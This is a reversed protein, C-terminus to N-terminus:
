HKTEPCRAVGVEFITPSADVSQNRLLVLQSSGRSKTDKESAALTEALNCIVYSQDVASLEPLTRKSVITPFYLHLLEVPSGLAKEVVLYVVLDMYFRTAVLSAHQKLETKFHSKTLEVLTQVLTNSRPSQPGFSPLRLLLRKVVVNIDETPLTPIAALLTEVLADEAGGQKEAVAKTVDEELFALVLGRLRARMNLEDADTTESTAPMIQDCLVSLTVAADLELHGLLAKKVVVVEDPEDSQLLQLLVDTNRRVWKSAAKSVATIANYGAKRVSAAQDECLDYVANIADEELDPFDNLLKPINEAALTKFNSNGEHTLDILKTLTKRRQIRFSHSGNSFFAAAGCRWVERNDPFTPNPSSPHLFCALLYKLLSGQIEREQERGNSDM